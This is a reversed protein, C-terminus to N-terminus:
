RASTPQRRLEQSSVVYSDASMVDSVIRAAIETPDLLGRWNARRRTMRTRMAGLYYELIRVGNRADDVQLARTFGRLGHKSACYVAEDYNPELGAVSNICVITGARRARFLAYVHKLLLVPAVLNTLLLDRAETDSLTVGRDSYVGANSVVCAIKRRRVLTVLRGIASLNRLDHQVITLGPRARAPKATRGVGYVHHGQAIFREAIARGLGSTAGTVLVAPRQVLLGSPM